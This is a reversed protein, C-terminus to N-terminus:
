EKEREQRARWWAQWRDPNFGLDQHSIERLLDMIEVGAVETAAELGRLLPPIADSGVNLLVERARAAEAQDDGALGRVLADLDSPEAARQKARIARGFLEVALKANSGDSAAKGSVPRADLRELISRARWAVEPDHGQAAATLAPRAAEGLAVLRETAEQRKEWSAHGLQAVLQAIAEAGPPKAAKPEKETRLAALRERAAAAWRTAPFREVVEAYLRRAAEQGDKQGRAAAASAYLTRAADPGVPELTIDLLSLAYTARWRVEPDQSRRAEQLAPRAADRLAILERMAKERVEWDADGLRAVIPALEGARAVPASKRKPPADTAPGDMTVGLAAQVPLFLVLALRTGGCCRLM